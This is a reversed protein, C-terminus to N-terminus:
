HGRAKGDVRLISIPEEVQVLSPLIQNLGKPTWMPAGVDDSLYPGFLRWEWWEFAEAMARGYEIRAGPIDVNLDYTLMNGSFILLAQFASPTFPARLIDPPTGPGTFTPAPNVIPTAFTALLNTNEDTYLKGFSDYILGPGHLFIQNSGSNITIANTAVLDGFHAAGTIAFTINGFVTLTEYDGITLSNATISLDGGSPNGTLTAVSLLQTRGLSSLMISGSAHLNGNMVVIGQPMLDGASLQNPIEGASPQLAINGGTSTIGAVTM